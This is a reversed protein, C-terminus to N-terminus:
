FIKVVGLIKAIKSLAHAHAEPIARQLGSRERYTLLAILDQLSTEIRALKETDTMCGLDQDIAHGTRSRRKLSKHCARSFAIM